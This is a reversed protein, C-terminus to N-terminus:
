ANSAIQWDEESLPPCSMTDLQILADLTAACITPPFESKSSLIGYLIQKLAVLQEKPLKSPMTAIRDAIQGTFHQSTENLIRLVRVDAYLIAEELTHRSQFLCQALSWIRSRELNEKGLGFAARRNMTLSIETPIESSRYSVYASIDLGDECDLKVLESITKLVRPSDNLALSQFWIYNERGKNLEYWFSSLIKYDIADVRLSIEIIAKAWTEAFTSPSQITAILAHIDKASIASVDVFCLYDAVLASDFLEGNNHLKTAVSFLRIIPIETYSKSTPSYQEILVLELLENVLAALQAWEKQRLNSVLDASVLGASVLDDWQKPHFLLTMWENSAIGAAGGFTLATSTLALLDSQQSFLARIGSRYRIWKERTEFYEPSPGLVTDYRMTWTPPEPLKSMLCGAKMYLDPDDPSQLATFLAGVYNLYDVNDSTEILPNPSQARVSFNLWYPRVITASQGYPGVIEQRKYNEIEVPLGVYKWVNVNNDDKAFRHRSVCYLRVARSRSLRKIIDAYALSPRTEHRFPLDRLIEFLTEDDALGLDIPMKYWLAVEIAQKAISPDKFSERVFDVMAAHEASGHSITRPFLWLAFEVTGFSKTTTQSFVKWLERWADGNRLVSIISVLYEQRLWTWWESEPITGTITRRFSEFQFRGFEPLTFLIARRTRVGSIISDISAPHTYDPAASYAWSLQRAPAAIAAFFRLVQQWYSGREVLCRFVKDPDAQLHNSLYNAAFFERYPQILFDIDAQNTGKGSLFVLRDTSLDYIKQIEQNFIGQFLEGGRILRWVNCVLEKFKGEPMIGGEGRAVAEHIQYGVMEHLLRLEREYQAVLENKAKERQFVVDVYKEFLKHREEPIDSKKRVITLMVTAQLLTTALRRVADSGMGRKIREEAEGREEANKIRETLWATSYRDFDERSLDNIAWRLPLFRDFEGNYGQPRSSMVIQLDANEGSCRNLFADCDKLISDRDEKNPVEDLGDLIILAPNTSILAFVDDQNLSSEVTGGILQRAIYSGIGAQSFEDTQSKRWKAYRRLEIRFPFRMECSADLNSATWGEPLKLRKALAAAYEPKVIRSAHYLALFQTITSKGYGPGALLMVKEQAGWLLPFASSVSDLDQPILSTTSRGEHADPTWMAVMERYCDPIRSRDLQLTQDIFVKSLPLADDDGAEEARAKSENTIIHLLYGRFTSERRDATFKIQRYLASLVDGPLILEAYSARVDTNNDLMRSLDAADWVEINPIKPKWEEAIKLIKDRTGIRRAGTLPVNTILVYHHCPVKYKTSVKELESKLDSLVASNAGEWGRLGIDHFKVQFVWHKDVDTASTAPRVYEPHNVPQTWTAERAGDAGSSCFQILGGIGRRKKELLAQAMQQFTEGSLRQFQYKSM